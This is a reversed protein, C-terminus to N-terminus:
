NHIHKGHFKNNLTGFPIDYERVAARMTLQGDAIRQVAEELQTETYNRYNRTGPKKRYTRVMKVCEFNYRSLSFALLACRHKSCNKVRTLYPVS